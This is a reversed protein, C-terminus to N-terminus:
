ESITEVDQLHPNDLPLGREQAVKRFTMAANKKQDLWLNFKQQEYRNRAHPQWRLADLLSFLSDVDSQPQQVQAELDNMRICLQEYQVDVPNKVDEPTPKPRMLFYGGAAAALAVAAGTMMTAKKVM